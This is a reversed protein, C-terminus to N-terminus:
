GACASGPGRCLAGGSAAAFCAPYGEHVLPPEILQDVMTTHLHRPTGCRPLGESHAAVVAATSASAVLACGQLSGRTSCALGPTGVVLAPTKPGAAAALLRWARQAKRPLLCACCSRKRQPHTGRANRQQGRTGAALALANPRQALRSCDQLHHLPPASPGAPWPAAEPPRPSRPCRWRMASAAWPGKSPHGNVIFPHRTTSSSLPSPYQRRHQCGGYQREQQM